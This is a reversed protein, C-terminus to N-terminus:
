RALDQNLDDQANLIKYQFEQPFYAHDEKFAANLIHTVNLEKLLKKNAACDM